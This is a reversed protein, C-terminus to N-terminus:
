NDLIIKVEKLLEFLVENWDNQKKAQLPKVSEYWGVNEGDTKFWRFNTEKNFLGITKAGLAGALNLIVNDTSIILDMNKVACASQTFDGFANGLPIVGNYDGANKQLDYMKLNPIDKLLTYIKSIEINRDDYNANKEGSCSIGIKFYNDDQLFREKYAKIKDETIDLYNTSLRSIASSDFKLAYLVDLLAINVDYEVDNEDTVIKVGEFLHSNLILDYLESQVVFIVEKAIKKLLPVFRSYMITDGFGQEYHVLLTKDSIVSKFDWKKNIDSPYKLNIDDINFRHAFYKHGNLFDGCRILFGGYNYYDNETPNNQLLKEYYIKALTNHGLKEYGFALGHLALRNDPQLKYAQEYLEIQKELSESGNLKSYLNATITYISVKTKDVEMFKEYCDIANQYDNIEKYFDALDIYALLKNEEKQSYIDLFSKYLVTDGSKALNRAIVLYDSCDLNSKVLLFRYLVLASLHNGKSTEDKAYNKITSFLVTKMSDPAEQKMPVFKKYVNIIELNFGDNIKDLIFTDLGRLLDAKIENQAFSEPDKEFLLKLEARKM